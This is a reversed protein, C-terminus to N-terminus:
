NFDVHVENFKRDDWYNLTWPSNGKATGTPACPVTFNKVKTYEFEKAVQIALDQVEALKKLYDQAVSSLSNSSGNRFKKAEKDAKVHLEELKTIRM